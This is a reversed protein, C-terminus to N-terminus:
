VLHKIKNKIKVLMESEILQQFLAYLLFVNLLLVRGEGSNMYFEASALYFALILMGWYEFSIRALGRWGNHLYRLLVGVWLLHIISLTALGDGGLRLTVLEELFMTSSYNPIVNWMFIGYSLLFL